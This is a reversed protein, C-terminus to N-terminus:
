RRLTRRLVAWIVVTSAIDLVALAPHAAIDAGSYPTVYLALGTISGRLGLVAIALLNNAFHFGWAAGLSGTIRTLDAAALGFIGAAGMVLANTTAPQNGDFHLAAFGAAPLVMWALPSHFRAALQQLIYARFVLEETGTQVLILVLTVPLLALWSALPLNASADFFWSWVALYPVALVLVVVAAQVFDRLGRVAPGFLTAPPRRHLLRAALMAGLAAPPFTAFLLLVGPLTAAESMRMGWILMHDPGAFLAVLAFIAIIGLLYCAAILVAGVVLRWLQARARAPAIYREFRPTFM